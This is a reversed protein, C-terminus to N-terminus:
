NRQIQIDNLKELNLKKLLYKWEQETLPQYELAGALLLADTHKQAQANEDEQMM